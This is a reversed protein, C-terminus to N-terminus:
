PAVCAAGGYTVVGNVGNCSTTRTIGSNIKCTVSPGTGAAITYNGSAVVYISSDIVCGAACSGSTVTAGTGATVAAATCTLTPGGTFGALCPATTVGLPVSSVAVNTAGAPVSCSGLVASTEKKLKWKKYLHNEIDTEESLVLDREYIILEGIRGNVYNTITTGNQAGIILEDNNGIFSASTGSAPSGDVELVVAGISSRSIRILNTKGASAKKSGYVVVSNSNSYRYLGGSDIELRYPFVGSTANRKELIVGVAGSAPLAVPQYILYITYEGTSNDFRTTLKFNNSSASSLTIGPLGSIKNSSFTSSGSLTLKANSNPNFDKLQTVTDADVAQKNVSTLSGGDSVADVWLVLDKVRPIRSGRSATRAGKLAAEDIMDSAQSIGAILVGIILIVVSIEILSFGKRNKRFRQITKFINLAM